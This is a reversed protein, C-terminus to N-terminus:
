VNVLKQKVSKNKEENLELVWNHAKKCIDNVTPQHFIIGLHGQDYYEIKKNKIQALEMVDEITTPPAIKDVTGAISYVPLNLQHMESTYNIAGDYSFFGPENSLQSRVFQLIVKISEECFVDELLFYWEPPTIQKYGVFDNLNVLQTNMQFSFNRMSSHINLIFKFFSNLDISSLTRVPFSVLNFLMDYIYRNPILKASDKLVGLGFMNSALDVYNPSTISVIGLIYKEPDIRNEKGKMKKIRDYAAAYFRPIMAGMSHGMVLIKHDPYLKVIWEIVAPFDDQIYDDMTWSYKSGDKPMTYRSRGRMDMSFVRYGHGLAMEKSPRDMVSRRCFFGPITLVITKTDNLQEPVFHKLSVSYGHTTPVIFSADLRYMMNYTHSHAVISTVPQKQGDQRTYLLHHITSETDAKEINKRAYYEDGKRDVELGLVYEVVDFLTHLQLNLDRMQDETLMKRRIGWLIGVPNEKVIIPIGVAYRMTETILNQLAPHIDKHTRLNIVEVEPKQMHSYALIARQLIGKAANRRDSLPIPRTKSIFEQIDKNTRNGVLEKMKFHTASAVIRTNEGQVVEFVAHDFVNSGNQHFTLGVMKNVLASWVKELYSYVENTVPFIHIDEYGVMHGNRINRNNFKTM